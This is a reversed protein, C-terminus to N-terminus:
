SVLGGPRGLVAFSSISTEACVAAWTGEVNLQSGAPAEKKIQEALAKASDEDSAGVLLYKWRHVAPLGEKRLQRCLRVADHRSPLDARVEFEPFGRKTTEDRERMMLAEREMGNEDDDVPLAKEPDEWEEAIPHWHRLDVDVVWGHERAETEVADGAKQAQERTGAYLFVRGGDQTVIVRDHFAESLDHRLQRADLRDTLMRARSAEHVDIQLRWDDSLDDGRHLASM